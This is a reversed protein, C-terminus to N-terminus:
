RPAVLFTCDGDRSSSLGGYGLHEWFNVSYMRGNQLEGDPM